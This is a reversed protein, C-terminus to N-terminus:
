PFKVGRYNTPDLGPVAANYYANISKIMENAVVAYGRPTPHVGDLSFLNGSVFAVTNGVGNTVVGTRAVGDFYTQADFVALGKRLANAKIVGNLESTRAQAATVEAGDLIAGNPLPSPPAVAALGAAQAPALGAIVVGFGLPTSTPTAQSGILSAAPLLILDTPAIERTTGAGTRIFLGFRISAAQAATLQLGATLAAKNADPVARAQVGAAAAAASVTTFIPLSTVNPITAVMGKAGGSTLVDTMASYKTDFEAVATMPVQGGSGAFGLVDNNGLWNTFFTPNVAAVQQQVYDQYTTSSAANPLLREFYPSFNFANSSPTLKGYDAVTIDAVRIGPVGLNQNGAATSRALLPLTPSLLARGPGFSNVAIYNGSADKVEPNIQPTGTATFGTITLYGSGSAQSADFLPQVFEGGGVAKFQGALMSPYSNLQGELYLGNDSYGATLSNGVAIYRSFDASGASSKFDNALDPKCGALLALLAFAAPATRNFNLNM